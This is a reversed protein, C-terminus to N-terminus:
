AGQRAEATAIIGQRIAIGLVVAHTPKVCWVGEYFGFDRVGKPLVESVIAAIEAKANAADHKAKAIWDRGWDQARKAEWFVTGVPRGLAGLVRQLIDGGRAGAKVPEIADQPFVQRLTAEFETELVDGQLQQSGQTAKRQAEELKSQMDSITKEKEALKLRMAEEADKSAQEQIAKRQEDVKRAVELELGKARQDIADKEQRLQLEASQSVSLQEQLNKAKAREAELEPALEKLLNAREAAVINQREVAIAQNIQAQTSEEKEAIEREKAALSSELTRAQVARAKSEAQLEAIDRDRKSIEVNASEAAEASAQLQIAKRQDDVRRAVELELNKSRQEVSERQSRLELEARQTSELKSQLDRAKAREAELEPSLEKLINARETSAIKQREVAVAQNVLTQVSAEKEALERERTALQAELSKATSVMADAEETARRITENTEARIRSIVPGALTEDLRIVEGCNPCKVDLDQPM